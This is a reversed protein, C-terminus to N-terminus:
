LCIVLGTIFVVYRIDAAEGTLRSDSVTRKDESTMTLKNDQSTLWTMASLTMHLSLINKTVNLTRKEPRSRQGFFSYKTTFIDSIYM